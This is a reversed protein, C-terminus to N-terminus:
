RVKNGNIFASQLTRPQLILHIPLQPTIPYDLKLLLFDAAKGTEISGTNLGLADAAKCTVSQLLQRALAELPAGHHMFLAIKLEEFLDLTYNSSLGDTACIWAVNAADLAALDLAGNGLMRNSIPCHVLTHGEQAIRELLAKPTHVGHTLLAKSHRLQSLFAEPDFHPAHQKLLEAFFPAFDGSGSELWELEARSELFHASVHLGEAKALALARQMLSPHVAYPSHIAIASYFGERTVRRSAELRQLFDGYLADAMAAQSGILENFFVVKQKAQACAELDLGRSSIAGFTTVGSDLMADCVAKLDSAQMLADRHAMVSYLWPLFGGYTLTSRNASFELHLHTNILGPMLLSGEGGEILQAHPYRARLADADGVAVIEREFAVAVGRHLEHPTLLADPAIITM